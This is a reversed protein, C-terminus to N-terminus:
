PETWQHTKKNNTNNVVFHHFSIKPALSNAFQAPTNAFQAPLNTRTNTEFNVWGGAAALVDLM